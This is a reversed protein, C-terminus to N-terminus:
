CVYVLAFNYDLRCFNGSNSSRHRSFGRDCYKEEIRGWEQDNLLCENGFYLDLAECILVRDDVRRGNVFLEYGDSAKVYGVRDLGCDRSQTEAAASSQVLVLLALLILAM